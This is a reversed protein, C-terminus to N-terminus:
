KKKLSILELKGNCINLYTDIPMFIQARFAIIITAESNPFMKYKNEFRIGSPQVFVPKFNQNRLLTVQNVYDKLM